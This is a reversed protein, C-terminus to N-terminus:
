NTFYLCCDQIHVNNKHTLWASKLRIHHYIVLANFSDCLFKGKISSIIDFSFTYNQVSASKPNIYTLLLTITIAESEINSANTYLHRSNIM